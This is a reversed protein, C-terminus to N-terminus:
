PSFYGVQPMIMGIDPKRFLYGFSFIQRWLRSPTWNPILQETLTRDLDNRVGHKAGFEYHKEPHM